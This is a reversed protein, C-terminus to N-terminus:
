SMSTSTVALKRFIRTGASSNVRVAWLRPGSGTVAAVSVAPMGGPVVAVFRDEPQLWDPAAMLQVKPVMALPETALLDKRSGSEASLMPLTPTVAIRVLEVGRSVLAALSVSEADQVTTEATSAM